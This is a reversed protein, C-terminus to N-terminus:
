LVAPSFQWDGATTSIFIGLNQSPLSVSGTGRNITQPNVYPFVALANTSFCIVMVFTGIPVTSADPLKVSDAATGVSVINLGLQLQTANAQGGGARATLSTPTMQFGNPLPAPYYTPSNPNGNSQPGVHGDASVLGTGADNTLNTTM